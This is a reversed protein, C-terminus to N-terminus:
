HYRVLHLLDPWQSVVALHWSCHARVNQVAANGPSAWLRGSTLSDAWCTSSPLFVDSVYKNRAGSGILRINACLTSACAWKSDIIRFRIELIENATQEAPSITTRAIITPMNFPRLDPSLVSFLVLAKLTIMAKEPPTQRIDNCVSIMADIISM